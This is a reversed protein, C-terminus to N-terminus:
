RVQSADAEQGPELIQYVGRIQAPGFPLTRYQVVRASVTFLTKRYRKAANPDSDDYMSRELAFEARANFYHGLDLRVGYMWDTPSLAEEIARTLMMRDSPAQTWLEMTLFQTFESLAVLYQGPYGAIEEPAVEPSFRAADYTGSEEAVVALSPLAQRNEYTAFDEFVRPQGNEQPGLTLARGQQAVHVAGALYSALGRTLATRCDTVSYGTLREPQDPRTVLTVVPRDPPNSPASPAQIQIDTM